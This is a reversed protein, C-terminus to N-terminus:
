HIIEPCDGASCLFQIKEQSQQGDPVPKSVFKINPHASNWTEDLWRMATGHADTVVDWHQEYVLEIVEDPAAPEATPAATAEPTAKACGALAAGAATLASLRLFDRRSLTKRDMEQRRSRELRPHGKGCGM